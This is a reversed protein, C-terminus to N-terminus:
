WCIKFVAEHKQLEPMQQYLFKCGCTVLDEKYYQLNSFDIKITTDNHIYYDDCLIDWVRDRFGPYTYDVYDLVEFIDYEVITKIDPIPKKM